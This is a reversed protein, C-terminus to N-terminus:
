QLNRVRMMIDRQTDNVVGVDYRTHRETSLLPCLYSRPEYNLCFTDRQSSPSCLVAAKSMYRVLLLEQGVSAFTM